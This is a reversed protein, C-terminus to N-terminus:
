ELYKVIGIVVLGVLFAVLRVYRYAFHRHVEPILDDAAVHLFTGASFAILYGIVTQSTGRLLLFTVFAGIPVMLSFLLIILSISKNSYHEKILLSSLSLSAPLKHLVVALFVILGLKPVFIGAGLALGTILSHLSLGFFASIGVSHFECGESPCPHTMIFKEFIYLVLFGLLIPLGLRSGIYEAADPIMHLLSAGLLVGAGFSIFLHIVFSNKRFYIPIAGGIWAVVVIFFSYLILSSLM